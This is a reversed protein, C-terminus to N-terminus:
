KFFANCLPYRGIIDGVNAGIEFLKMLFSLLSGGFFTKSFIHDGEFNVVCCRILM